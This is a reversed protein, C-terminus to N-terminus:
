QEEAKAAKKGVIGAIIALIASPIGICTFILLIGALIELFFFRRTFGCLVTIGLLIAAVIWTYTAIKSYYAAAKEVSIKMSEAFIQLATENKSGWSYLAALIAVLIIAIASLVYFKKM